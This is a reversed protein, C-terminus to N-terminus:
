DKRRLNAPFLLSEIPSNLCSVKASQTIIRPFIRLVCIFISHSFQSCFQINLIIQLRNQLSLIDLLISILMEKLDLAMNYVM